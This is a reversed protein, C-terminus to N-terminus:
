ESQVRGCSHFFHERGSSTLTVLQTASTSGATITGFTLSGPVLTVAPAAGLGIGSLLAHQSSGPANDSVSVQAQRSGAGTPSFSISVSCFKGPQLLPPCNNVQTFDALNAGAIAISNVSLPQDGNSVLQVIQTTSVSGQTVSGFSVSAPFLTAVPGSIAQVPIGSIAIATGAGAYPSGALETLLGTQRNIQYGHLDATYLYPGMPDTVLVRSYIAQPSNVAETLAGSTSDIFFIHLGQATAMYLYQGNTDIQMADPFVSAGLKYVPTSLQAISGDVPSIQYGQYFGETNGWGIYIFRDRPDLAMSRANSTASVGSLAALQGSLPDVSYANLDAPHMGNALFFGLFAYLARGKPDSVMAIAGTPISTAPNAVPVLQLHAADIAFQDIEGFAPVSGNQYAVYLYKGSKETALASPSSPAVNPTLTPGIAFPSASVEALAGTSSDIQFMSINSTSRNLVFLFRGLADIALSSGNLKESFPSGPVLALTGTQSDKSSANIVSSTVSTPNSTYIRQQPSTQAHLSPGCLLLANLAALFFRGRVRRFMSPHFLRSPAQVFALPANQAMAEEQASSVPV